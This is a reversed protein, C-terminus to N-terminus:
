LEDAYPLQNADGLAVYNFKGLKFDKVKSVDLDFTSISTENSLALQTQTLPVASSINAGKKLSSVIAKINSSVASPAGKVYLTFLGVQNYKNFKAESVLESFEAISSVYNALVEYTAYDAKKVPIAIAAVSPGIARLRSEVGEFTKPAESSVLSSGEPLQNFTSDSIFRKLDGENIGKGLIEINSKVYVKDSFQKIDDLSVKEVGDYYLPNGLGSRFTAAHLLEEAKYIPNALAKSLDYKAVPQVIEPLEHPRYSTKYLVDGLANVYYPLSEKLFNATLYISERDFTSSFEGGLLESERTLRLASRQRTNQFNFRSLLHSLGDKPAYRAGANIKVTLSSIKGATDVASVKTAYGRSAQPISTALRRSLM